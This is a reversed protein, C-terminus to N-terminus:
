IVFYVFQVKSLSFTRSIDIVIEGQLPTHRMRLRAAAKANIRYYVRNVEIILLCHVICVVCALFLEIAFQPYSYIHVLITHSLVKVINSVMEEM